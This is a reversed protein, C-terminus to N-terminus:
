ALDSASAIILLFVYKPRVGRHHDDFDSWLHRLYRLTIIRAGLTLLYFNYKSYVPSSVVHFRSAWTTLILNVLNLFPVFIDVRM